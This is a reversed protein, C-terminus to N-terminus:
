RVVRVASPMRGLYEGIVGVRLMGVTNADDFYIVQRSDIEALAAALGLHFRGPGAAQNFAPVVVSRTPQRFPREPLPFMEPM